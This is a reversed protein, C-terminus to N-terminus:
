LNPSLIQTQFHLFKSQRREMNQLAHIASINESSHSYLIFICLVPFTSGDPLTKESFPVGPVIKQKEPPNLTYSHWICCPAKFNTAEGGTTRLM